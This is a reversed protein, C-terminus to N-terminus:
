STLSFFVSAWGFILLSIPSVTLEFHCRKQKRRECQHALPRAILASAIVGPRHCACGAGPGSISLSQHSLPAVIPCSSWLPLCADFEVIGPGTSEDEKRKVIGIRRGRKGGVSRRAGRPRYIRPDQEQYGVFMWQYGSELRKNVM